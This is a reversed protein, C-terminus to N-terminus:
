YKYLAHSKNDGVALEPQFVPKIGPKKKGNRGNLGTSHTRTRFFRQKRGTQLSGFTSETCQQSPANFCFEIVDVNIQRCFLGSVRGFWEDTRARRIHIKIKDRKYSYILYNYDVNSTGALLRDHIENINNGILNYNISSNPRLRSELNLASSVGM